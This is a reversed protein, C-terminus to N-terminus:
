TSPSNPAPTSSSSNKSPKIFNGLEQAEEIVQDRLWPHARYLDRAAQESFPLSQGPASEIGAWGMTYITALEIMSDEVEDLSLPEPKGRRRAAVDRAQAQQLKIRAHERVVQSRPGRVTINAGIGQQTGPYTPEFTYGDESAQATSPTASANFTM